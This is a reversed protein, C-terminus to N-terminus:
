TTRTIVLTNAAVILSSNNSSYDSGLDNCGFLVDNTAAGGNAVYYIIKRVGSLTSNTWTVSPFTITLKETTLDQSMTPVLIIGGATYGTGSVEGTIHSRNTHTDANETYSSDVAMAKFTSTGIIIKGQFAAYYAYNYSITAM